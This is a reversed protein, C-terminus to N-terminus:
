ESGFDSPFEEHDDDPHEASYDDWNEQSQEQFIQEEEWRVADGFPMCEYPDARMAEIDAQEREWECRACFENSPNGHPCAPYM